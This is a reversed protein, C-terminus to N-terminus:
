RTNKRFWAITRAMAEEESYLPSYGLTRCAKDGCFTFEKCVMAVSTRNIVPTFGYVPCCVWALCELAAALGSMVPYPISRSRPPMDHGIGKLIPELYDFFNKAPFDTILFVEGAAERGPGLLSRAALLHAHAVNGVYVHQFRARGSGVRFLMRGKRAMALLSGVHYPDREGFMGCPRISCTWLPELGRVGAGKRLSGNAQIVAQEALAKTRAYALTLTEPCPLTEDANCLPRGDYVVDMTSTYVLGRVGQESCARIVNLTGGVNVDHVIAEPLRGWDVAAACHFVLDAGRCARQVASLSRVDGVMSEVRAHGSFDSERLDLTRVRRPRLGAPHDDKLLEALLAHGLFGAGGTVLVEPGREAAQPDAM